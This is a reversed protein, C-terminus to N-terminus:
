TLPTNIDLSHNRFSFPARPSLLQLVAQQGLKLANVVAQEISDATINGFPVFPARSYCKQM